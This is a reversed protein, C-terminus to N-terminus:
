YIFFFFLFSFFLFSFFLFSFFDLESWCSSETPLPAEKLRTVQTLAGSGVLSSFHLGALQGKVEVRETTM